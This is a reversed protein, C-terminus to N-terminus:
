NTLAPFALAQLEVHESQFLKWRRQMGECVPITHVKCSHLLVHRAADFDGNVAAAQAYRELVNPYAYRRAVNRLKRLDEVPMGAVVPLAVAWHYAAWGDLFYWDEKPLESAARGIRLTALDLDRLSDAAKAYEYAFAGALVTLAVTPVALTFRPATLTSTAAFNGAGVFGMMLGAPLLYFSYHLPYELLAHAFLAFLMMLLCWSESDRCSAIRKAFWAILGACILLGLPLGNYILLDLVLNHSHTAWEQIRPFDVAVEYQAVVVQNWGYGFWPARMIAEWFSLWHGPRTGAALRVQSGQFENPGYWSTQLIPLLCVAAVFVTFGIVVAIMPARLAARRRMSFSWLVLTALAVWATRSQTLVIGWGMWGMAIAAPWAGIRRQEYLYIIGITGLLLQTALNNPQGMNAYPRSWPPLAEILGPFVSPGLWQSFAMGTSIIAVGVLVFILGNLTQSRLAGTSLTAGVCISLAFAGLYLFCVIADGRFPIQGLGWQILPVLAVALVALSLRPWTVRQNQEIAAGALLVSGIAAAVEQYFAPWPLYHGPLIWALVICTLGLGLWLSLQKTGPLALAWWKPLRAQSQFLNVM